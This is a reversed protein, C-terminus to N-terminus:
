KTCSDKSSHNMWQSRQASVSARICFAGIAQLHPHQNLKESAEGSGIREEAAAAALLAALQILLKSEPPFAQQRIENQSISSSKHSLAWRGHTRCDLSSLNAKDDIRHAVSRSPGRQLQVFVTPSLLLERARSLQSLASLRTQACTNSKVVVNM